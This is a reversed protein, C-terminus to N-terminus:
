PCTDPYLVEIDVSYAKPGGDDPLRYKGTRVFDEAYDDLVDYGTSSIVEPGRMFNGVEDVVVMLTGRLPANDLCTDGLEYPLELTDAKAPYTQGAVAWNAVETIVGSGLNKTGDHQYAAVDQLREELTPPTVPDPDSLGSSGSEPPLEDTPDTPPEPTPLPTPPIQDPDPPPPPASQPSAPQPSRAVVSEASESAPETSTPEGEDSRQVTGAPLIAVEIASESTDELVPDAVEPNFEVEPWPLGLLVGHALVSFAILGIFLGSRSRKRTKIQNQEGLQEM